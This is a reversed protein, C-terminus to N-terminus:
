NKNQPGCNDAYFTFKNFDRYAPHQMAKAFCSMVDDANRGSIGEHWVVGLPSTHSSKEKNGGLPAFTEHFAVLRRTFVCTKVGPMRPLMIIKQMDCSLFVEDDTDKELDEKYHRRTILVSESHLDHSRCMECDAAAASYHKKHIDHQLCEECEEEGLKVFSINM